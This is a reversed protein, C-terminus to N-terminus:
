ESDIPVLSVAPSDEIWACVLVVDQTKRGQIIDELTIHPLKKKIENDKDGKKRKCQDM